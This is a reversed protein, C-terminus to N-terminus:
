RNFQGTAIMVLRRQGRDEISVCLLLQKVLSLSYLFLGRFSWDRRELPCRSPKISISACRARSPHALCSSSSSCTRRRRKMGIYTRTHTSRNQRHVSLFTSRLFSFFFFRETVRRDTDSGGDDVDDYTHNLMSMSPSPFLPFFFRLASGLPSSCM